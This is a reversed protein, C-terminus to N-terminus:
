KKTHMSPCFHVLTYQGPCAGVGSYAGMYRIELPLSLLGKWVFTHFNYGMYTGTLALIALEILRGHASVWYVITYEVM